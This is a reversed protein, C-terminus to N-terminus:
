GEKGDIYIDKYKIGWISFTSFHCLHCFEGQGWGRRHRSSCLKLFSIQKKQRIDARTLKKLEVIAQKCYKNQTDRSVKKM